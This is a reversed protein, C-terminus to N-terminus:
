SLAKWASHFRQLATINGLVAFVILVWDTVSFYYGWWFFQVIPLLMLIVLRDARGLIGGYIRGLGIAQAQTGMYSTLYVGVLAFVGIWLTAYPSFMIGLLIITDAYRDIAHDLFDGRKSALNRMRAVKGDVADLLASLFIFLFALLLFDFYYSLAALTAIGLSIATITNPHMGAFPRAIATLVGDVKSRYDNLVM